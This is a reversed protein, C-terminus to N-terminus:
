GMHCSIFVVSTWHFFFFLHFFRVQEDWIVLFSFELHGIFFFCFFFCFFFLLFASRRGMHCSIFVVSTWHFCFFIFSVFKKMGYSLFHFCCIDLSFPVEEDLIVLFSFVLHGILSGALFSGAGGRPFKASM